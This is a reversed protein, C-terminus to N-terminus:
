YTSLKWEIQDGNKIIYSGAGVESSKGNIIMEWFQHKKQDANIGNISTVFANIGTGTTEIKTVSQTADLATKDVFKSIDFKQNDILLYSKQDQVVQNNNSRQTNQYKIFVFGAFIIVLFFTLLKKYKDM